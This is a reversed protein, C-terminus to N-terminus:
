SELRKKRTVVAFSFALLSDEEKVVSVCVLATGLDLERAPLGLQCIGGVVLRTHLAQRKM